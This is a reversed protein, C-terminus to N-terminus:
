LYVQPGRHLLPADTKLAHM